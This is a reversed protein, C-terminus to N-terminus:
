ALCFYILVNGLITHRPDIWVLLLYGHSEVLSTVVELLLQWRFIAAILIKNFFVFVIDTFVM